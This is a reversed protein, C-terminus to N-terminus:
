SVVLSSDPTLNACEEILQFNEIFTNYLALVNIQNIQEIPYTESPNYQISTAKNKYLLKGYYICPTNPYEKLINSQFKNYIRQYAESPRWLNSTSYIFQIQSPNNTQDPLHLTNDTITSFPNIINELPLDIYTFDSM